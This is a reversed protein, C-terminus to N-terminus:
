LHTESLARNISLLLKDKIGEAETLHPEIYATHTFLATGLAEASIYGLSYLVRAVCVLEITAYAPCSEVMLSQHAEVLTDFLYENREECPVLRRTLDAIRGFTMVGKMDKNQASHKMTAGVLRWDRKGRVLEIYARTGEQTAYRLKSKELRLSIGRVVCLGFDRTMIYLVKDGEGHPFTKLVIADTTYRDYM